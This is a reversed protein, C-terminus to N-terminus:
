RRQLMLQEILFLVSFTIVGWGVIGEECATSLYWIDHSDLRVVGHNVKLHQLLWFDIQVIREWEDRFDASSELDNRIWWLSIRSMCVAAAASSSAFTTLIFSHFKRIWMVTTAWRNHTIKHSREWRLVCVCVWGNAWSFGCQGDNAFWSRQRM